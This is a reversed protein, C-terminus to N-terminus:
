KKEEEPTTVSKSLSTTTTVTPIEGQRKKDIFYYGLVIGEIGGALNIITMQKDTLEEKQIFALILLAGFIGSWYLALISTINTKLWLTNTMVNNIEM